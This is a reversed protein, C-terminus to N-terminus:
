QLIIDILESVNKKGFHVDKGNIVFCPVSMVDYKDKLEKFHKFDYIDATVKDSLTIIREASTVLEPCMTCNLSVLITLHIDEKISNIKDINEDSVKQGASGANYLGLIFSTFEHGGPVGHFNIGVPEGNENLVRVYPVMEENSTEESIEGELSVEKMSIHDTLSSIEKMYLVLENSIETNNTHVELILKKTLKSFVTNLQSVMDGDLVKFGGTNLSEEGESKADFTANEKAYRNEKKQMKPLVNLVARRKALYKEMSTAAVAGDSTATVIQRLSKVCIDGSAFLGQKTTMNNKDTIVYGKEDLDVIDKVLENSPIFGAFVFVGIIDGGIASHTTIEGTVNNKYTIKRVSSDGEVSIVETNTLVTIDKNARAKDAVAKACTFDDERILLTVHSAYKTLFGSEEAAAFGGGVVFVEKGTFFEGDCIACYAVGRGRFKRENKFGVLRPHAGTSLLVGLCHLDGKDTKVIKIDSDLNLATVDAIMFEAGFFEAQKKMKRTLEEGNQPEAGPYNVVENTENVLGGFKKKEVILVRYCARALYIAASLGSPGGGVIVADYLDKEETDM